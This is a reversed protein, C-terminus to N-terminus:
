CLRKGAWPAEGEAKVWFNRVARSEHLTEMGAPPLLVNNQDTKCDGALWPTVSSVLGGENVLPMYIGSYKHANHLIFDGSENLYTIQEM